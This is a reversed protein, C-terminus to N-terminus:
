VKFLLAKLQKKLIMKIKDIDGEKSLSTLKKSKIQVIIATDQYRALVDIDFMIVANNSRINIDKFTNSIGFIKSFLNFVIEESVKGRNDLSIASYSKDRTMWYFPSEYIAEALYFPMPIFFLENDIKIIPKVQFENYDGVAKLQACNGKELEISFLDTIKEFEEDNNNLVTKSLCFVKFIDNNKRLERNNLNNNLCTKVHKFYPVLSNLSFGKNEKIWIEDYKYKDIAKRVYQFDYAGTSAYFFAEKFRLGNVMFESPSLNSDLLKPGETTFTFHLAEMISYIREFEIEYDLDISNSKSTNKIWLGILFSAENYNLFNPSKQRDLNDYTGVFDQLIIASIIYKFNYNSTIKDLEQIIERQTM